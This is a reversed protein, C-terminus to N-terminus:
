IAQKKGFHIITYAVIPILIVSITVLLNAYLVPTGFINYTDTNRFLAEVSILEELNLQRFIIALQKTPMFSSIFVPASYIGLSILMSLINNKVLLSILMVLLTFLIIGIFSFMLGRIYYQIVTINYPTAELYKLSNLAQNWGKFKDLAIYSLFVCNVFAFIITSFVLSSLIKSIILKNKGFKSSLVLSATNNQYDSSFITAIGVIVLISLFPAMRQFDAGYNWEMKYHYTQAEKKDILNYIYEMNKYTFTDTKGEQKLKDLDKKLESKKYEKDGIVYDPDIDLTYDFNLISSLVFEEPSLNDKKRLKKEYDERIKIREKTLVEGEYPAVIQQVQEKNKINNFKLVRADRYISSGMSWLVALLLVWVVKKSFIKGIEFKILEIM